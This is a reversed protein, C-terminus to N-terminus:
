EKNLIEIMEQIKQGIVHKDPEALVGEICTGNIFARINVYGEAPCLEVGYTDGDTVFYGYCDDQTEDSTYCSCLAVIGRITVGSPINVPTRTLVYIETM